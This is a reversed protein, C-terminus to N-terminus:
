MGNDKNGHVCTYNKTRTLHMASSIPTFFCKAEVKLELVMSRLM